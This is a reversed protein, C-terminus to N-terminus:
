ARKLRILTSGKQRSGASLRSGARACRDPLRSPRLFDLYCVGHPACFLGRAQPGREMAANKSLRTPGPVAATGPLKSSTANGDAVQPRPSDLQQWHLHHPGQVPWRPGEM